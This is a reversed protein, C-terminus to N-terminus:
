ASTPGTSSRGGCARAGLVGERVGQLAPRAARVRRRHRGAAEDAEGRRGRAGGVPGSRAPRPEHVAVARRRQARDVDRQRQPDRRDAHRPRRGALRGRLGRRRDDRRRRDVAVVKGDECGSACCRRRSASRTASRRDLRPRRGHHRARVRRALLVARPRRVPPDHRARRPPRDPGQAPLGPPRRGVAGQRAALRDALARRGRDRVHRPQRRLPRRDGGRHRDAARAGGARGAAARGRSLAHLDQPRDIRDLLTTM